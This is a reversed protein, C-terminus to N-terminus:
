ILAFRRKMEVDDGINEAVILKLETERLGFFDRLLEIEARCDFPHIWVSKQLPLFGIRKLKGRFAERYLRKLEAIDFVVIRWKSDCTKPRKIRLEDIQLYGAAKKGKETLNIYIQGNENRTEILGQRRLNYFSDYIKKRPHRRWKRYSKILSSVFYPSSAAIYIAGSMLLTYLIDKVIETRPKKFYYKYKRIEM